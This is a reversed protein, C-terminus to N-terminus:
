KSLKILDNLFQEYFKMEYHVYGLKWPHKVDAIAKSTTLADIVQIKPCHKLIIQDLKEWNENMPKLLHNNFSVVEGEANYYSEVCRSSNLIIKCKPYNTQMYEILKICSATWLEVFQDSDTNFNIKSIGTMEKFYKTSTFKWENNTMYQNDSNYVVGFRVDIFFDLVLVDPKNIEIDKFIQKQSEDVIEKVTRRANTEAAKIKAPLDDASIASNAKVAKIADQVIYELDDNTIQMTENMLTIISGQYFDGVVKFNEKYNQNFLSNFNDRTVCSGILMVNKIKPKKAGFIKQLLKGM